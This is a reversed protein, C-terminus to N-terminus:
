ATELSALLLRLLERAERADEKTFVVRERVIQLLAAGRALSASTEIQAIMFDVLEEARNTDLQSVDFRYPAFPANVRRVIRLDDSSAALRTFGCGDVDVLEVDPTRDRLRKLVYEIKKRDIM